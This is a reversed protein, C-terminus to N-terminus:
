NHQNLWEKLDGLPVEKKLENYVEHRYGEYKKFTKDEVAIAAFLSDWSDPHFAEDESGLQMMTPIKLKSAAPIMQPLSIFIENGLRTTLRSEVLPDNVYADVVQKDHSIFNPDLGSPLSLKPLIASLIKAVVKLVANVAPGTAAGTGSLTLSKYDQKDRSSVYHNAILSGMSHGLIHVPLDPHADRAIKEFISVDDVYDSFRNVHCRLGGSKGHGRHDLAWIAYGEPLLTDVVNLYRGSHEGLGHIVIVLGKPSDPIWTQYYLNTGEIGNFHDEKHQM